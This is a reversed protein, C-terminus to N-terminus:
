VSEQCANLSYKNTTHDRLIIVRVNENGLLPELAAPQDPVHYIFVPVHRLVQRAVRGYIPADTDGSNMAMVTFGGFYYALRYASLVFRTLPYKEPLPQTDFITRIGARRFASLNIPDEGEVYIRSLLGDQGAIEALRAAAEGAQPRSLKGLKKLDLWFYGREGTSEFLKGLYLLSGDAQKNYPRDHSVVFRGSQVDYYTDVEIGEAGADFARRVSAISNGATSDDPRRGTVLGRTAWVKHCGQYVDAYSRGALQRDVYALVLLYSIVVVGVAILM